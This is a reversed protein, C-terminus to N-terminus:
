FNLSSVAPRAGYGPDATLFSACPPLLPGEKWFICNLRITPKM